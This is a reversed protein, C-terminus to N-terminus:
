SEVIKQLLKRELEIQEKINSYRRMNAEFELKNIKNKAFDEFAKVDYLSVTRKEDQTEDLIKKSIERRYVYAVHKSSTAWLVVIMSISIIGQIIYGINNNLFVQIVVIMGITIIISVFRFWIVNMFYFVEINKVFRSELHERDYNLGVDTTDIKKFEHFMEKKKINKM